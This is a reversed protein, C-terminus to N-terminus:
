RAGKYKNYFDTLEKYHTEWQILHSVKDDFNHNSGDIKAYWHGNKDQYLRRFSGSINGSYDNQVRTYIFLHGDVRVAESDWVSM